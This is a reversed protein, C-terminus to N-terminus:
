RLLLRLLLLRRLVRLRLVRLRLLHRLVCLHLLRRLVSWSLWLHRALWLYRALRLNLLGGRGGWLPFASLGFPVCPM